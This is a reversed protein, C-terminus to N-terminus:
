MSSGLNDILNEIGQNYYYRSLTGNKLIYIKDCLSIEHEEHTTIIVIGGNAKFHKIYNDIQNKCALDLSTGPEDLILIQPDDAVACAISLRKKMGGSMNSVRVKLFDQIGLMKLVGDKLEEEMNLVSDCYWLRLNDKASLEEMLPNGQPVYGIKKSITKRNKFVDAGDLLFEGSDTKLIGALISLLTTKGCGNIGLIGICEGSEASFSINELVKKKGSSYKKSINNVEIRM